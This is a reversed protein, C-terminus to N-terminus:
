EGRLCLVKTGAPDKRLYWAEGGSALSRQICALWAEWPDLIFQHAITRAPDPSPRVTAPDFYPPNCVILQAKLKGDLNFESVRGWFIRHTKLSGFNELNSELHPCWAAQAEVLLASEIELAKSLECTVVGSGAGLELLVGPARHRTRAIVEKVLTLSDQGFRFFEPQSYDASGSM